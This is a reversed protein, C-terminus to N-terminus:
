NEQRPAVSRSVKALGEDDGFKRLAELAVIRAHDYAKPDKMASRVLAVCEKLSGERILRLLDLRFEPRKNVSWAQKIAQSLEPKSFMRLARNDYRDDSIGGRAHKEALTSLLRKRAEMPVSGPDGHQLLVHPERLIVEDRIDSNSLALWAAAPRLSPIITEVGYTEAFLVDRLDSLNAKELLSSELFKATLYEQTARHHFRVRGYTAPAFVGRRLLANRKADTWEPLITAPDVADSSLSPDSGHGPARLIFTKSFTMTAALRQAGEYAKALSLTDNDPRYVNSEKLKQEVAHATM